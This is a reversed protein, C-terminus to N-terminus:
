KKRKKEGGHKNIKIKKNGVWGIEKAVPILCEFRFSEGIRAERRRPIRYPKLAGRPCEPFFREEPYLLDPSTKLHDM